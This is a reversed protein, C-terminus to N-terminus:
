SSSRPSCRQAAAAAGLSAHHTSDPHRLTHVPGRHGLWCRWPAGALDEMKYGEHTSRGLGAEHYGAVFSLRVKMRDADLCSSLRANGAESKAEAPESACSIPCAPGRRHASPADGATAAAAARSSPEFARARRDFALRPSSRSRLSAAPQLSAAPGGRLRPHMYCPHRRWHGRVVAAHAAHVGQLHWPEFVLRGSRIYWEISDLIKGVVNMHLKLPQLVFAHM